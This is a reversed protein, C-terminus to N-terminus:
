VIQIADIDVTRGSAHVLKVTHPGPGLDGSTWTVQWVRTTSYENITTLTIQSGNFTFEASSGVTTSYHMTGLYPGSTTTAIFNNYTWGEYGDDYKGPGVANNGPGTQTDKLSPDTVNIYEEVNTYGDCDMDAIADSNNKPDLGYEGGL